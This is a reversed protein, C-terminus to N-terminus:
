PIRTLVSLYPVGGIDFRVKLTTSNLILIEGTVSTNDAYTVTFTNNNKTWVGVDITEDCDLDYYHDRLAGNAAIESFDKVCGPSHEYPELIEQNNVISGEQTFQWKGVISPAQAEDNDNKSCSLVTFALFAICLIKKM